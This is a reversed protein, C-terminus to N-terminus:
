ELKRAQFIRHVSSVPPSCDMSECLTQCLQTVLVKLSEHPKPASTETLLM